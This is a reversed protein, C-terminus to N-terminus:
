NAVIMWANSVDRPSGDSPRNRVQWTASNNKTRIVLTSSGGGDLNIANFAGCAHLMKGLEQCTLGNSYHASRGDAVILYLHDNKSLGLGSRPQLTEDGPTLVQGDKILRDGAGLADRILNTLSAFGQRSGIYPTGNKLIAFFCRSRKMDWSDKLLKGENEVISWPPGQWHFFDANIGAIVKKGESELLEAFEPVTHRTFDEDIEDYDMAAEMRIASNNLDVSLIFVHMAKGNTAQYYIETEKVGEYISFITDSFVTDILHTNSFIKQTLPSQFSVTVTTDKRENKVPSTQNKTCGFLVLSNTFLLLYIFYKM